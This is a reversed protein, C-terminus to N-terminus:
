PRTKPESSLIDRVITTLSHPNIPANLFGDAGLKTARSPSPQDGVVIVPVGFAARLESCITYRETRPILLDVVVVEPAWGGDTTALAEEFTAAWRPHLKLQELRGDLEGRLFPDDTLFLVCTQHGDQIPAKALGSHSRPSGASQAESDVIVRVM